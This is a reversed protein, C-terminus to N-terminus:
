RGRRRDDRPARITEDACSLGCPSCRSHSYEVALRRDDRARCASDTARRRLQQDRLARLNQDVVEVAVDGLLRCRLDVALGGHEGAVQGLAAISENPLISMM